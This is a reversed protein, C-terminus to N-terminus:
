RCQLLGTAMDIPLTLRLTLLRRGAALLATALAFGRRAAFRVLAGNLALESLYLRFNRTLNYYMTTFAFPQLNLAARRPQIRRILPFSPTLLPYVARSFMKSEEGIM